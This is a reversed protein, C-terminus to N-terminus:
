NPCTGVAINALKVFGYQTIPPTTATSTRPTVFRGIDLSGDYLTKAAYDCRHEAAAWLTGAITFPNAQTGVLIQQGNANAVYYAAPEAYPAPDFELYGTCATGCNYNPAWDYANWAVTVGNVSIVMYPNSTPGWFPSWPNDLYGTFGMGYPWPNGFWNNPDSANPATGAPNKIGRKRLPSFGQYTKVTEKVLIKESNCWPTSSVDVTHPGIANIDAITTTMPGPMTFNALAQVPDVSPFWQGNTKYAQKQGDSLFTALDPDQQALDLIARMEDTVCKQGGNTRSYLPDSTRFEIGSGSARVAYRHPALITNAYCPAVAGGQKAALRMLNFALDAASRQQSETAGPVPCSATVENSVTNLEAVDEGPASSCGVLSTAVVAPMTIAFLRSKM